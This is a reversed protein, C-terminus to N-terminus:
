RPGGGLRARAWNFGETAGQIFIDLVFFGLSILVLFESWAFPADLAGSVLGALTGTGAGFAALWWGLWAALLFLGLLLAITWSEPTSYGLLSFNDLQIVETQDIRLTTTSNIVPNSGQLVQADVRWVHDGPLLSVSGDCHINVLSASQAQITGGTLDWVCNALPVDDVVLSFRVANPSVGQSTVRYHAAVTFVTERGLVQYDHPEIVTFSQNAFAGTASRVAEVGIEYSRVDKTAASAVPAAMPVVLAVLVLAIATKM